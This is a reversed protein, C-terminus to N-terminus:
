KRPTPNLQRPAGPAPPRALVNRLAHVIHPDRAVCNTDLFASIRVAGRNSLTYQDIVTDVSGNGFWAVVGMWGSRILLINFTAPDPAANTRRMKGSTIVGIGELVGFGIEDGVMGQPWEDVASPEQKRSTVKLADYSRHNMVWRLESSSPDTMWVDYFDNKFDQAQQRGLSAGALDIEAGFRTLLGTPQDDAGTGFLLGDDAASDMADAIEAITAGLAAPIAYKLASREVPVTCKVYLPRIQDEDAKWESEAAATDKPGWSAVVRGTRKPISAGERPMNEERFGLRPLLNGWKRAASVDDLLHALYAQPSLAGISGPDTSVARGAPKFLAAPLRVGGRDPLGAARRALEKTVEGEFGDIECGDIMTQWCRAVNFPQARNLHIAPARAPVSEILRPARSLTELGGAPEPPPDDATPRRPQLPPMSFVEQELRQTLSRVESIRAEPNAPTSCISVEILEWLECIPTGDEDDAFSWRMPRLGISTATIEGARIARWVADDSIHAEMTVEDPSRQLEIIRGAVHALDHNFLLPLPGPRVTMGSPLVHTGWRDKTATNVTAKILRQSGDGVLVPVHPSWRELRDGPPARRTTLNRDHHPM